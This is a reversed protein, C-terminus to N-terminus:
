RQSKIKTLEEKSINKTIDGFTKDRLEYFKTNDILFKGVNSKFNSICYKPYMPSTKTPIKEYLCFHIHPHKTDRHLACMWEVNTLDLGMDMILSPIVNNSLSYFDSKTILGHNYAFDPPFSLFGRWFIGRNNLNSIKNIAEQKLLDGDKNWMFAEGDEFFFAEKNTLSIYDNLYNLDDLSTADAKQKQIAYNIWKSIGIRENKPIKYQLQFVIDSKSM